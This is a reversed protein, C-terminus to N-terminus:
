RSQGDVRPLLDALTQWLTQREFPKSICANCGSRRCEEIEEVMARATIAVIPGTYGAARVRRTTEYGDMTPLRIDMLILDFERGGAFTEEVLGVADEGCEVVAVEVGTNRLVASMLWQHDQNDEVLLFRLGRWDIATASANTITSAFSSM